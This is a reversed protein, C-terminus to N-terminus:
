LHYCVSCNFNVAFPAMFLPTGQIRSVSTEVSMKQGKRELKEEVSFTVAICSGRIGMNNGGAFWTQPLTINECTNTQGCPLRQIVDSGTQSGPRMNRRPPDRDRTGHEKRPGRDLLPRDLPAKQGPLPARDLPTETPPM